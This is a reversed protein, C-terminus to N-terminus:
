SGRAQAAWRARRAQLGARREAATLKPPQYKSKRQPLPPVEFGRRSKPKNYTPRMVCEVAFQLGCGIPRLFLGFASLVAECADPVDPINMKVRNRVGIGYDDFIVVSGVQLHPWAYCFDLLADHAYHSGDIYLLDIPGRDWDRLVDQSRAQIWTWRDSYPALAAHATAQVQLMQAPPHRKGMPAYPDIGYGRSEPHTLVTRAVYEASGGIWCGIEVYTIPRGICPKVYRSFERRVKNFWPRM